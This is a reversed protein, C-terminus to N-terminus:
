HIFYSGVVKEGLGEVAVERLVEEQTVEAVVHEVGGVKVGRGTAEAHFIQQRDVARPYERAEGDLHVLHGHLVGLEIDLRPHFGGHAVEGGTVEANDTIVPFYIAIAARDPRHDVGLRALRGIDEGDVVTGDVLPNDFVLLAGDVLATTYLHGVIGLEDAGNISIVVIDVDVAVDVGDFVDFVDEVEPGDVPVAHVADAAELNSIDGFGM